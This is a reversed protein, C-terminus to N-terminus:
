DYTTQLPSHLKANIESPRRAGARTRGDVRQDDDRTGSTTDATETWRTRLVRGIAGAGGTTRRMRRLRESSSGGQLRGRPATPAGARRGEGLSLRSSSSRKPSKSAVSRLARRRPSADGKCLACNEDENEHKSAENEKGAVTRSVWKVAAFRSERGEARKRYDRARRSRTRWGWVIWPARLSSSGGAIVRRRVQHRVFAKATDLIMKPALLDLRAQRRRAPVVNVAARGMPVWDATGFNVAEGVNWGHSIRAHYARPWTVVFEGARQLTQCM